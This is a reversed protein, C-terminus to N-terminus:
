CGRFSKLALHDGNTVPNLIVETGGYNRESYGCYRVAGNNTYAGVTDFSRGSPLKLANIDPVDTGPLVAFSSLNKNGGNFVCFWGYGCSPGWEAADNLVYVGPPNATVAAAEATPLTILALSGLAVGARRVLTAARTM